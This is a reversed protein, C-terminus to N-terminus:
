LVATPKHVGFVDRLTDCVEGITAYAHVAALIHPMLNETGGAARRLRVLARQVEDHNRERRARALRAKQRALVEPSVRLISPRAADESQFRNVGVVVQDGTEVRKAERYASEAIQRQILGAELARLVGGADEIQRILM